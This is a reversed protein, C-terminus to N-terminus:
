VQKLPIMESFNMLKHWAHFPKFSLGAHNKTSIECKDAGVNQFIHHISIRRKIVVLSIINKNPVVRRTGTNLVHSM